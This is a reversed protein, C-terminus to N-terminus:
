SPHSFSDVVCRSRKPPANSHGQTAEASISELRCRKKSESRQLRGYENISSTCSSAANTGQYDSEDSDTEALVDGELALCSASCPLGLDKEILPIQKQVWQLLIQHRQAGARAERYTSTADRYKRITDVRYQLRDFAEIASDLKAQAEFLKRQAKPGRLSPNLSDREALLVQSSAAEVAQRLSTREDDHLSTCQAAEVLSQSEHSRLVKADVVTQWADKYNQHYRKYWSYRKCESLEFCLYELWQSIADQDKTDQKMHLATPLSQKHLRRTCRTSYERFTGSNQRMRKQYRCFLNWRELQREFVMWQEKEPGSPDHRWYQLLEEYNGPNRVVQDILARPYWPRGGARVLMDYFRTESEVDNTQQEELSATCYVQSQLSLRGVNTNSELDSTWLQLIDMYSGSKDVPCVVNSIDPLRGCYLVQLGDKMWRTVKDQGLTELSPQKDSKGDDASWNVAKFIPGMPQDM